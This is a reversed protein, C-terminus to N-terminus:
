DEPADRALDEALIISVGAAAAQAEQPPHVRGSVVVAKAAVGTAKELIAAREAARDIDEQHLTISVEVAIYVPAATARDTARLIVDLLSVQLHQEPTISQNEEADELLDALGQDINAVISKLTVARRLRMRQSLVRSLNGQLRREADAGLLRGLQGQMRDIEVRMQRTNTELGTLRENTSAAIEELNATRGELGTLRENSSAAIEELRTLRQESHAAIEELRTLRQESHAAIEELRTLRQESHAAIEELRTLRQESHAAIEELRALRENSSAAIEELRALREDARQNTERQDQIFDNVVQELRALRENSSAAIEELRTLRADARQNIERQEQIFDNVVQELRALRADARQNTERQEQIFDNVVRTLQALATPLDLIEKTLLLSRLTDSWEPREALIRALDSIDNITTTM